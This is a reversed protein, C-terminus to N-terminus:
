NTIFTGSVALFPLNVKSAADPTFVVDLLSKSITNGTMVDIDGLGILKAALRVIVPVFRSRTFFTIKEPTAGATVV